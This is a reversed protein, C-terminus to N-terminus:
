YIGIQRLRESLPMQHVISMMMADWGPNAEVVIPGSEEIAIDWGITKVHPFHKHYSTAMERVQAFFPIRREAFDYHWDPHKTHTSFEYKDNHSFGVSKLTGDANLGIAIGGAAFNDIAAGDRGIRVLPLCLLEPKANDKNWCSIIRITNLSSPNLANMEKCQKIVPQVIFDMESMIKHIGEGNLINGQAGTIKFCGIGCWLNEMKLFFSERSKLFDVFQEQTVRLDNIFGGSNRSWRALVPVVSLGLAKSYLWFLYKNSLVASWDVPSSKNCAVIRSNHDQGRRVYDLPARGKADVGMANYEICVAGDSMRLRILDIYRIMWSKRPYYTVIQKQRVISPIVILADIIFACTRVYQCKLYRYARRLLRRM